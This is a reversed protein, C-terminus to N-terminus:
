GLILLLAAQVELNELASGDMAVFHPGDGEVGRRQESNYSALREVKGLGVIARGMPLPKHHEPPCKGTLKKKDCSKDSDTM